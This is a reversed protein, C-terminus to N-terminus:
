LSSQELNCRPTCHGRTHASKGVCIRGHYAPDNIGFLDPPCAVRVGDKSTKLCGETALVEGNRSIVIKEWVGVVNNHPFPSGPHQELRVNRYEVARFHAPDEINEQKEASTAEEIQLRVGAAQCDPLTLLQKNSNSAETPLTCAIAQQTNMKNICHLASLCLQLLNLMTTFRMM